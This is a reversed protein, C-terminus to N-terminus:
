IGSQRGCQHGRQTRGQVGCDGGSQGGRNGISTGAHAETRAGCLGNVPRVRRVYELPTRTERRLGERISRVAMCLEKRATKMRVYKSTAFVSMTRATEVWTPPGPSPIDIPVEFPEDTPKFSLLDNPKNAHVDAPKDFLVDNPKNKPKDNLVDNHLDSLKNKLLDVPRDLLKEKPLDTRLDIPNDKLFAASAPSKRPVLSLCRMEPLKLVDHCIGGAM